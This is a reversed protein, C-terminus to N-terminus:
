RHRTIDMRVNPNATTKCKVLINLNATTKCKVLINFNVTRHSERSLLSHTSRGHENYFIVYCILVLSYVHAFDVDAIRDHPLSTCTHGQM